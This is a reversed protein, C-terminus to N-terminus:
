VNTRSFHDRNSENIKNLYLARSPVHERMQKEALLQRAHMQGGVKTPEAGQLMCERLRENMRKDLAYPLTCKSM